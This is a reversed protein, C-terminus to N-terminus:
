VEGGVILDLSESEPDYVEKVTIKGEQIANNIINEAFKELDATKENWCCMFEKIVKTIKMEFEERTEEESKEFASIREIMENHENILQNMAGYILATQEIVTRSEFDHIAPFPNALVWKPLTNM